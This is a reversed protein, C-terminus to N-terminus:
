SKCRFAARLENSDNEIGDPVNWQPFILRFTTGNGPASTYTVTGGHLEVIQQVIALGLGTGDAKTTVLPEFVNIGAPIGVGTDTVELTVGTEVAQVRITLTGGEPMAEMANKCLNLVVQKLKNEDAKVLPTEFAFGQEIAIGRESFLPREATLVDQVVTVLNTPAFAVEQRRSLSRFEQLLQSLRTIQNMLVRVAVAADDDPQGNENIHLQLLQAAMAMGNLPNGIEHVLTAATTGIAALRERELLQAQLRVRESIDRIFAGYRV